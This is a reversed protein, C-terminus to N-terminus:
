VSMEDELRRLVAAPTDTMEPIGMGMEIMDAPRRGNCICQIRKRVHRKMRLIVHKPTGAAAARSEPQIDVGTGLGGDIQYVAHNELQACSFKFYAKRGAVRTSM